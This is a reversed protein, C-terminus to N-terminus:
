RRGRSSSCSRSSSPRSSPGCSRPSPTATPRRRAARRRGPKRRYRVVTWIILGEVVFFIVAAIGFIIDYLNRISRAATPSPTPRSSARSSARRRDDLPNFGPQSSARRGRRDPCRASWSPPSRSPHAAPGPPVRWAPGRHLPSPCTWVRGPRVRPWSVATADADRASSPPRVVGADLVATTPGHRRHVVSRDGRATGAASGDSATRIAATAVADAAGTPACPGVGALWGVGGDSRRPQVNSGSGVSAIRAAETQRATPRGGPSRPVGRAVRDRATPGDGERGAHRRQCERQQGPM